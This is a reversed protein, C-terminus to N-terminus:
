GTVHHQVSVKHPFYSFNIGLVMLKPFAITELRQNPLLNSIYLGAHERERKLFGGGLNPFLPNVKNLFHASLLSRIGNRKPQM